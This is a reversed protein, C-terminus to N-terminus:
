RTLCPTRLRYNDRDHDLRVSLVLATGSQLAMFGFRRRIADKCAALRRAREADPDPFLVPQVEPPQLPSLEVGLLRLPLRRTYLRRYRDRAAEKLTTEDQTPRRFATRGDACEYDGYRLSITLGRAALDQFRLWSVARELLHDLMAECFAPEAAPPDFSTRRSISQPPRYPAVPRSDIGQAQQHLLRGREGFLGCLAALPMAAAQGVRQVNLRELRAHLKRGVGPLVEVPWPALYEAETGAPVVALAGRDDHLASLGDRSFDLPRKKAAETAVAAVLKNGGMGLSVSLDIEERVQRRVALALRGCGDETASAATFDLYLDDLAPMEVQGTRDLCIALIRRGAQEYRRYDGAVIRLRRCRARAESLAMGTRVGHRKAEYSSSAVVGTGVAVPRGRLAPDDRQEISAFFADVDLHVIRRAQTQQRM